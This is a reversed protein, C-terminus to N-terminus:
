LGKTMLEVRIGPVLYLVAEESCQDPVRDQRERIANGLRGDAAVLADHVATSRAGHTELQRDAKYQGEIWQEMLDADYQDSGESMHAYIQYRVQPNKHGLLPYPCSIPLGAAITTSACTHRM